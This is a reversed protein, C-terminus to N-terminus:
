TSPASQGANLMLSCRSGLVELKPNEILVSVEILGSEADAVPSIHEITASRDGRESLSVAVSNGATLGEIESNQLFFSARLRSVDVIRVLESTNPAVLEGLEKHLEVVIGDIPAVITRQALLTTLRQVQLRLIEQEELESLLRAQAIRLDAEAREVETQSSFNQKRASILSDVRRLGLEVEAQAASRRGHNAAQVQAIELQQQISASELEALRDGSQVRDGLKVYLTSVLGTEVCAVDCIKWPKLVGDSSYETSFTGHPTRIQASVSPIPLLCAIVAFITKPLVKTKTSNPMKMSRFQALDSSLDLRM